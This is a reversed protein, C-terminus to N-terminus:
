TGPDRLPRSEPCSTDEIVRSVWEAPRLARIEEVSMSVYPALAQATRSNCLEESGGALPPAPLPLPELDPLSAPTDPRNDASPSGQGGTATPPPPLPAPAPIPELEPMSPSDLQAPSGGTGAAPCAAGQVAQEANSFHQHIQEASM